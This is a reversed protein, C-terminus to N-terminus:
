TNVFIEDFFLFIWNERAEEPISRLKTAAKLKIYQISSYTSWEVNIQESPKTIVVTIVVVKMAAIESPMIHIM